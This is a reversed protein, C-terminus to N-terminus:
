ARELDNLHKDRSVVGGVLLDPPEQSHKGQQGLFQGLLVPFPGHVPDHDQQDTYHLSQSLRGQEVWDVHVAIDVPQVTDNGALFFQNTPNISCIWYQKTISLNIKQPPLPIFKMKRIKLSKSLLNSIWTHDPYMYMYTKFM